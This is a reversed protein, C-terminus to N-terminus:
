DAELEFVHGVLFPLAPNGTKLQATGIFKKINDPLYDGTPVVAFKRTEMPEGGSVTAWLVFDNEQAGVSIPSFGDPVELTCAGGIKCLGYKYIMKM